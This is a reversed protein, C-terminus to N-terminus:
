HTDLHRRETVTSKDGGLGLENQIRVDSNGIKVLAHRFDMLTGITPALHYAAARGNKVM